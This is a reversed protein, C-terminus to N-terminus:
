FSHPSTFLLCLHVSENTEIAHVFYAFLNVRHSITGSCFDWAGFTFHPYNLNIATFPNAVEQDWKKNPYRCHATPQKEIPTIHRRHAANYRAMDLPFSNRDLHTLLETQPQTRHTCTSRSRLTALRPFIHPYKAFLPKVRNAIWVPNKFRVSYM